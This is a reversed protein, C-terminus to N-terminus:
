GWESKGDVPPAVLQPRTLHTSSNEIEPARLPVRPQKGRKPYDKRLPYGLFEDYLLIRRLDDHGIFKIGFMDYVERELFNASPWLPKVSEAEPSDEPVQIKVCLRQMFTLSLLQYVLEFREARRDLWDVCTVDLLMNFRFTEGDRLKRFHALAGQRKMQMVLGFDKWRHDPSRSLDSGFQQSIDELLRKQQEASGIQGPIPGTVKNAM